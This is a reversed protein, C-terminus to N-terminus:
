RQRCLSPPLPLCPSPLLHTAEVVLPQSYGVLLSAESWRDHAGTEGINSHAEKRSRGVHAVILILGIVLASLPCVPPTPFLKLFSLCRIVLNDGMQSLM